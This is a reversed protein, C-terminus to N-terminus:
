PTKSVAADGAARPRTELQALRSALAAITREQARMRSEQQESQKRQAELSRQQRKMENLLMPALEQYKVTFPAGKEDYVVLDPLVKAVEEAILGYEETHGDGGVDKRYQFRVPRLAMLRASADGMDEVGQKFRESSPAVGLQGDGSVVVTSGALPIGSIGAVFTATQTGPTGIRIRGSEGAMGLNALYINDSGTTQYTGASLGVAVNRQGTTNSYLARYGVASNYNGNNWYLARAGVSSSGRGTTNRVLANAGLASNEMGTTNQILAAFGAGTNLSGTTNYFMSSWGLATNSGGTTNLGLTSEGFGSNASGATNTFLAYDGFAANSTGTTNARLAISGFASNAAGTTNSALAYDGFAADFSGTSSPNGAQSGVFTGHPGTTHVFLTGNRSVNGTAEDVRLREVSGTSNKLSFGAGADLQVSVDGALAPASLILALGPALVVLRFWRPILAAVFKEKV